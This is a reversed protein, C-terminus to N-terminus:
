NGVHHFELFPFAAHSHALLLLMQVAQPFTRNHLQVETCGLPAAHERHFKFVIGFYTLFNGLVNHM